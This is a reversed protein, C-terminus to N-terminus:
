GGIFEWGVHAPMTYDPEGDFANGCSAHPVDGRQECAERPSCCDTLKWLRGDGDEYVYRRWSDTGLYKLHLTGTRAPVLGYYDSDYRTLPKEYDIHGWAERGIEGCYTKQEFNRIELAKNSETEPFTGPAIPREISYYRM